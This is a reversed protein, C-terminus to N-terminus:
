VCMIYRVNCRGNASVKTALLQNVIWVSKQNNGFIHCLKLDKLVGYLGKFADFAVKKISNEKYIGVGFQENKVFESLRMLEHTKIHPDNLIKFYQQLYSLHQKWEDSLPSRSLTDHHDKLKLVLEPIVM